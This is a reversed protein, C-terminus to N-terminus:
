AEMACHNHVRECIDIIKLIVAAEIEVKEYSFNYGFENYIINLKNEDIGYVCIYNLVEAILGIKQLILKKKALDWHHIKNDFNEPFPLRELKFFIFCNYVSELSVITNSGTFNYLGGIMPVNIKNFLCHLASLLYNKPLNIKRNSQNM